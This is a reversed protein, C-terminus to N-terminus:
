LKTIAAAEWEDRYVAVIMYDWYRGDCFHHERLRAEEHLLGKLGSAFQQLNFEVTEGYLKHFNFMRFVYNFFLDSAELGFGVGALQPDVVVSVVGTGDRFNARTLIVHGIATGDATRCVVFQVLVDQWLRTLFQEPSPTEGRFLWRYGVREDTALAMLFAYDRETIPRLAVRRGALSPLMPAATSRPSFTEAESLVGVRLSQSKYPLSIEGGLAADLHSDDKGGSLDRASARNSEYARWDSRFLALIFRERYEGDYFEHQQLCGEQRFLAGIGPLAVLKDRGQESVDAYVKRFSWTEFLYGVFQELADVQDRSSGSNLPFWAVQVTGDLPSMSSAVLLSIAQGRKEAILQVLVKAWLNRVFDEPSPTRGQFREFFGGERIAVVKYL